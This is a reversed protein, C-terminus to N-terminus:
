RSRASMEGTNYDPVKLLEATYRFPLSSTSEDIRCNAGELRQVPVGIFVDLHDLSPPFASELSRSLPLPDVDPMNVMLGDPM